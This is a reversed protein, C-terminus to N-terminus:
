LSVTEKASFISRVAAFLPEEEEHHLVARLLTLYTGGSPFKIEGMLLWSEDSAADVIQYWISRRFLMVKAGSSTSVVWYVNGEDSKRENVSIIKTVVVFCTIGKEICTREKRM